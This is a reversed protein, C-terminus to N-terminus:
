EPIKLTIVVMTGTSNGLSDKKDIVEIGAEQQRLLNDLEIRAQTLNVGKSQHTINSRSKNQMSVERGVGDDEVIIEVLNNNRKVFLSLKGENGKPIIGHWIANEIFPQVILAPIFISKLDLQNDIDISYMFRADFRMTELQLYLKCTEVEDYLTILKKDANNFLTRILKSFTTLYSVGKETENEQMLSKISNLCNYIFHPNMQSRLAQAELQMLQHEYEAKLKEEKRIRRVKWEIFVFTMMIGFLLLLLGFWISKWFPPKVRIELTAEAKRWDGGPPRVKLQLLYKGPKLDQLLLFQDKDSTIVPMEIWGGTYGEMKWAFQLPNTQSFDPATYSIRVTNQRPSLILKDLLYSHYDRSAIEKGEETQVSTFKPVLFAPSPGDISGPKNSNINEGIFLRKGKLVLLRGLSDLVIDSIQGQNGEFVANDIYRLSHDSLNFIAPFTDAIAVFVENASKYSTAKVPSSSSKSTRCSFYDVQLSSTNLVGIGKELTSFLVKGQIGTEIDTITNGQGTATVAKMEGTIRHYRFLGRDTGIWIFKPDSFDAALALVGAGEPLKVQRIKKGGNRIIYDNNDGWESKVQNLLGKKRGGQEIIFLGSSRTGAFVDGDDHILLATVASSKPLVFPPFGLGNMSGNPRWIFFNDHAVFYFLSDAGQAMARISDEAVYQRIGAKAKDKKNEEDYLIGTHILPGNIESGRIRWLGASSSIWTVGERTTYLQYPTVGLSDFNISKFSFKEQGFVLVPWFFLAALIISSLRM